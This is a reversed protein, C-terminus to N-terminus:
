WENKSAGEWLLIIGYVGLLLGFAILCIIIFSLMTILALIIASILTIGPNQLLILVFMISLSLVFVGLIILIRLFIKM